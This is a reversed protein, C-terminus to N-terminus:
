RTMLCDLPLSSSIHHDPEPSAVVCGTVLCNQGLGFQPDAVDKRVVSQRELQWLPVRSGRAGPAVGELGRDSRGSGGEGTGIQKCM